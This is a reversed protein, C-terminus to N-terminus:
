FLPPLPPIGPPISRPCPQCISGPPGASESSRGTRRSGFSISNKAWGGRRRTKSCLSQRRPRCLWWGRAPLDVAEFGEGTFRGAGAAAFLYALGPKQEGRLSESTRSGEVPIQEVRFYEADILVTRDALDRPAIKGARTTLKTAELSKEIHLERPRGYDFMRYTLTATRSRRWCFRDRGSPTCRGRM